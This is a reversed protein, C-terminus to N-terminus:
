EAGEVRDGPQTPLPNTDLFKNALETHVKILDLDLKNSKKMNEEALCPRLNKWSFCEKQQTEHLLDFSSCPKVHDIHWESTNSWSIKDTFQFELWKRLFAIDCGIYKATSNDKNTKQALLAMRIRNRLLTRLRYEPRNEKERIKDPHKKRYIKYSQRQKEITWERPKWCDNCTRFLGDKSRPAKKYLDTPQSKNCVKCVKHTHTTTSQESQEKSKKRM